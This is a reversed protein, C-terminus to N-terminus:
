WLERELAELRTDHGEVAWETESFRATLLEDAV